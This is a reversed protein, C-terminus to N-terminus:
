SGNKGETALEYVRLLDDLSGQVVNQPEFHKTSLARCMASYFSKVDSNKFLYGNKGDVILEELSSNDAGVVPVKFNLAEICSNPLNDVRSPQLVCVANIVLPYLQEKPLPQLFIARDCFEDPLNKLIHEKCSRGDGLGDDRGVCLFSLDTYTALLQPLVKSILDTGKLRSMQGFYLVYRKGEVRHLYVSDDLEIHHRDPMTRVVHAKVGLRHNLKRAFFVSPSIVYDAKKIQINEYLEFIKDSFFSKSANARAYEHHLSSLRCVSPVDPLTVFLGPAAYNSVQMVDFPQVKHKATVIFRLRVRTLLFCLQSLLFNLGRPLPISAESKKVEVVQVDGENWQMNRDSLTIVCVTHGLESLARAYKQVYVGLGGGRSRKAIYYEPTLFLINM